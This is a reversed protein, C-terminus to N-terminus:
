WWVFGYRGLWGDSAREVLVPERPPSFRVSREGLNHACGYRDSQVVLISRERADAEVVATRPCDEATMRALRSVLTLLSDPDGRQAAVNVSRYGTAERQVPRVRESGTRTSFGGEPGDDWQMALRVSSRGPASPDDGMGIEQGNMLLTPGPLGFLLSMVMRHQDPDPILSTLGRRVGRGYIRDAARPAFADFVESQQAPTLRDLDLEDLNRLFHLWRSWGGLEGQQTLTQAIPRADARELSLFVANNGLFNLLQDFSGEALLRASSDLPMDAEAVLVPERDFGRTAERLKRLLWRDDPDSGPTPGGALMPGAADIRFGDVGHRFWHAAIASIEAVVAPNALNLDPQFRYFVHHVWAEAVDDYRWTSSEEGVFGSGNMPEPIPEESWIYYEGYRSDREQRARAYWLHDVSTHHAVLDLLVRIGRAHAPAVLEDFATIDGLREDVVM